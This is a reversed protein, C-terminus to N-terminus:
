LWRPHKNLEEYFKDPFLEWVTQNTGRYFVDCVRKMQGSREMSPAFINHVLRQTGAENENTTIFSRGNGVWELCTPIFFQSTIHQHTIIQNRTRLSPTPIKDSFVCTRACIRYCNEGMLDFSHSAFSGVYNDGYTLLWVQWRDENRISDVLMKETSNNTFNRQRATDYFDTLDLTDSWPIVKYM